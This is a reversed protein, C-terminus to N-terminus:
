FYGQQLKMLHKSASYSYGMTLLRQNSSERTLLTHRVSLCVSPTVTLIAIDTDRQASTRHQQAFFRILTTTLWGHIFVDICDHLGLAGNVGGVIDFCRESKTSAVNSKAAV